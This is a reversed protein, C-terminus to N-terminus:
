MREMGAPPEFDKGVPLCNAGLAEKYNVNRLYHCGGDSRNWLHEDVHVTTLALKMGVPFSEQITLVPIQFMTHM